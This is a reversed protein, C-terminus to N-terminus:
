LALSIHPLQHPSPHFSNPMHIKSGHLACTQRKPLRHRLHMLNQRPTNRRKRLLHSRSTSPHQSSQLSHSMRIKSRAPRADTMEGPPAPSAGTSPSSNRRLAFRTHSSHALMSPLYTHSPVLPAANSLRGPKPTCWLIDRVQRVLEVFSRMGDYESEPERHGFTVVPHSPWKHSTDVECRWM